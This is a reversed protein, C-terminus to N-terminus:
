HYGARDMLKIASEQLEGTKAVNILKTSFSGWSAVFASPKVKPNVPYEHNVDAFLGQAEDSALWELFKIAEAKHPAHKLIGAGSINVHVGGDSASPWFLKAKLKPNKEVLRGYYYTNVIGLDCQGADIAEILKTDDQFVPAALNAVWGKVMKEVAAEGQEAILMAVLSQNYVKKASRLCLRKKFQPEALHQYNKIDEPKVREPNYVITRARQSLGFWRNEPDRLVAPVAAELSKSSVPEFLGAKAASWLNGADVTMLLDAPSKDAEGKLREILTSANDTLTAIVVGTKKTYADFVPKVLHEKRESYVNLTVASAVSHGALSLIATWLNIALFRM